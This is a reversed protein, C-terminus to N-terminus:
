NLKLEKVNNLGFHLLFRNTVSYVSPRGPVELKGTMEILEREVLTHIMSSCDVGRIAEIEARTIPHRFAVISLVELAAQSLREKGRSPFLHKLYINYQPLTRLLFGGGVEELKFARERYGLALEELLERVSGLDIPAYTKLISHIKKIPLPESSAFLLAEAIRKFEESM